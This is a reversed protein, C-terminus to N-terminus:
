DCRPLVELENATVAYRARGEWTYDVRIGSYRPHPGTTRLRLTLARRDEGSGIRAGVAPQLGPADPPWGPATGPLMRTGDPLIKEQVLGAKVLTLDHAALLRVSTLRVVHGQGPDLMAQGDHIDQTGPSAICVSFTRSGDEGGLRLPGHTTPSLMLAVVGALLPGCLVAFIPTTWRRLWRRAATAPSPTEVTEM